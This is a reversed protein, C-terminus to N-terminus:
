IGYIKSYKQKIRKRYIRNYQNYHERVTKNCINNIECKACNNDIYETTIYKIIGKNKLRNKKISVRSRERRQELLTPIENIGANYDALYFKRHEKKSKGCNAYNKCKVCTEKQYKLTMQIPM